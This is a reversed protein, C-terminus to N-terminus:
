EGLHRLADQAPQFGQAAAKRWWQVAAANDRKLPGMEQEIALAMNHQASAVGLEAAKRWCAVAEHEEGAELSQTALASWAPIFGRDAAARFLKSSETISSEVGCGVHLALAAQYLAQAHGQEAARLWYEFATSADHEVGDGTSYREALGNIAHLHGLGASCLWYIGVMGM